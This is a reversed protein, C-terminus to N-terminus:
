GTLGAVAVGGGIDRMLWGTAAAASCGGTAGGGGANTGRETVGADAGM